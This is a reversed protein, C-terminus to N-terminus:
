AGVQSRNNKSKEFRVAYGLTKFVETINPVLVSVIKKVDEDTFSNYEGKLNNYVKDQNLGTQDIVKKFNIFKYPLTRTLVSVGKIKVKPM